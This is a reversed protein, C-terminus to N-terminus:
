PKEPAMTELRTEFDAHLVPENDNVSPSTSPQNLRMGNM